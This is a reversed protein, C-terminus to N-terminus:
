KILLGRMADSKVRNCPRCLLRLNTVSTPGGKAVPIIHDFEIENDPVYKHCEQCVHNDRRVVQLMVARPIYRGELRREVTETGGSQAFFVPCAHGFVKCNVEEPSYEQIYNWNGPRFLHLSEVEEWVEDETNLQGSTLAGISEKYRTEASIGSEAAGAWPFYEVLHGYPCYKLEWCPKCVSGEPRKKKRAM